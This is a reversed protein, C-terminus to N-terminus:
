VTIWWGAVRGAGKPAIVLWRAIGSLTLALMTGGGVIWAPLGFPAVVEPVIGVSGAALNLLMYFAVPLVAGALLGSIENLNASASDYRTWTAAM